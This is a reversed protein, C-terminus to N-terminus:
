LFLSNKIIFYNKDVMCVEKRIFCLFYMKIYDKIKREIFIGDKFKWYVVYM